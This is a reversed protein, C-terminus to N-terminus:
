INRVRQLLRIFNSNTDDSKWRNIFWCVIQINGRTYGLDSDIRDPSAKLDPDVVEGPLELEIGSLACRGQQRSILERIHKELQTRDLDTSKMKARRELTRGDADEITQLISRALTAAAKRVRDQEREINEKPFAGLLAEIEGVTGSSLAIRIRKNSNGKAPGVSPRRGVAQMRKSLLTFIEKASVSSDDASFIEREELPLKRAPGSDVWARVMRIASTNLRSLILRLAKAYDVNQANGSGKTGGRSHLVLAAPEIEVIADLVVGDVDELLFEM